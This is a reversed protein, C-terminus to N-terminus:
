APKVKMAWWLDILEEPVELNKHYYKKAWGELAKGSRIDVKHGEKHLWSVLEAEKGKVPTARLVFDVQEGDTTTFGELGYESLEHQLGFETARQSHPDTCGQTLKFLKTLKTRAADDLEPTPSFGEVDQKPVYPAM